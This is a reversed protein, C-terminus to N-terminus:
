LLFKMAYGKARPVRTRDQVKSLIGSVLKQKESFSITELARLVISPGDTDKHIVEPEMLTNSIVKSM